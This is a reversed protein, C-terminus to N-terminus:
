TVRISNIVEIGECVSRVVEQALQKHYYSSVAGSILLSQDRYEVRLKRLEFFPSGALAAQARSQLQSSTATSM